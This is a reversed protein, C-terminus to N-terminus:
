FRITAILASNECFGCSPPTWLLNFARKSRWPTTCCEFRGGSWSSSMLFLTVSSAATVILAGRARLEAVEVGGIGAEAVAGGKASGTCGGEAETVGGDTGAAWGAAGTVRSDNSPFPAIAAKSLM